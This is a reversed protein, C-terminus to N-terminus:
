AGPNVRESSGSGSMVGSICPTKADTFIRGQYPQASLGDRRRRAGPDRGRRWHPRPVRNSPPSGGSSRMSTDALPAPCGCVQEFISRYVALQTHDHHCNIYALAVQGPEERAMSFIWRITTTKGTGLPGRLVANRPGAGQLLFALEQIQADRHHLHDPMYAFDFVDPDRFLTQDARLLRKM